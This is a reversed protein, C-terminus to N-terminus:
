QAKSTPPQPKPNVKARKTSKTKASKEPSNDYKVRKKIEVGSKARTGAM